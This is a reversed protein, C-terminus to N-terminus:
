LGAIEIYPIRDDPVPVPIEPGKMSFTYLSSEYSIHPLDQAAPLLQDLESLGLMLFHFGRERTLICLEELLIRFISPNNNQLCIFSAYASNLKEGRDPLPPTGLLPTFLNYVPKLIHLAGHYGQIVTQKYDSQDWLGATGVITGGKRLLIFDFLSFSRTLTNQLFDDESYAPFFQKNRGWSNLFAVIEELNKRSGREISYGTSKKGKKKKLIIGLTKIGAARRLRPFSNRPHDVFVTRATGNQDAIAALWMDAETDAHQLQLFTMGRSPLMLGQYAPAVRLQGLYGVPRVEGNVFLDRVATAATMALEGSKEERAILVKGSHGMTSCGLFYEPEREFTVTIRGEMLSSALLKRLDPDDKEGALSFHFKM